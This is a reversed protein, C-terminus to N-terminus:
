LETLIYNEVFPTYIPKQLQSVKSTVEKLIVEASANKDNVSTQAYLNMALITLTLLIKIM